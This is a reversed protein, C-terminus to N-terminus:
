KKAPAEVVVGTAEISVKAAASKAGESELHEVEAKSREKVMVTGELKVKQGASDMPVFFSHGEFAVHVSAGAQDLTIWCGQEQCVAKINGELAVKQGNEPKALVAAVTTPALGTLPKGYAKSAASAQTAFAITLSLAILARM